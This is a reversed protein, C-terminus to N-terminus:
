REKEALRGKGGVKLISEVPPIRGGNHPPKLGQPTLQRPYGHGRPQDGTGFAAEVTQGAFMHESSSQQM